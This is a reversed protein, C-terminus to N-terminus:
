EKKPYYKEIWKKYLWAAPLNDVHREALEKIQSENMDPHERKEIRERIMIEVPKLKEWVLPANQFRRCILDSEVLEERVMWGVWNWFDSVIRRHNSKEQDKDIEEPAVNWVTRIAEGMEKNTYTKFLEVILAAKRNKALDYIQVLTLIAGCLITLFILLTIGTYILLTLTDMKDKNDPPWLVCNYSYAFYISSGM